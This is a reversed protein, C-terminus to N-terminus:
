YGVPLPLSDQRRALRSRRPSRVSSKRRIPEISEIPENSTTVNPIRLVRAFSVCLGLVIWLITPILFISSVTAITVVIAVIVARLSRRLRQQQLDLDSTSRTSRWCVAICALFLTLGLIGYAMSVELYSNVMDIIGEGQRMQQMLPNSLYHFDGFVPSQKLVTTSVTWLRQRYTISGSDQGGLFPLMEYVSKGFPTLYLAGGVVLIAGAIYGFRKSRGPGSLVIYLLGAVAGVWPGRSFTVLLGASLSGVLAWKRLRSEVRGLFSYTLMLAVAMCYGMAIPHGLSTKARLLGLDGRTVYAGVPIDFAYALTQYVWWSKLTEFVGVFALAVLGIVLVAITERIQGVSRLARSAVYYVLGIDLSLYLIYRTAAIPGQQVAGCAMMYVLYTAVIVDPFKPGRPREHREFFLKLALPLLIAIAVLREHYVPIFTEILGIGPIVKQLPPAALMLFVYMGFPNPDKRASVAAFAFCVAAYIWFNIALFAISTVLLWQIRRRSFNSAGIDTAPITDRLLHFAMLCIAMIFVYAKLYIPM